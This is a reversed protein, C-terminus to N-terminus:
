QGTLNLQLDQLGYYSVTPKKAFTKVKQSYQLFM